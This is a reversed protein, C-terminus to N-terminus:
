NIDHLNGHDWELLVILYRKASSGAIIVSSLLDCHLFLTASSKAM